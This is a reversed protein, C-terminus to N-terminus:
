AGVPLLLPHARRASRGHRDRGASGAELELLSQLHRRKFIARDGERPGDDELRLMLQGTCMALAEDSRTFLAAASFERRVLPALAQEGAFAQAQVDVPMPPSVPGAYMTSSANPTSGDTSYRIAYGLSQSREVRVKGGADTKAEILPFVAHQARKFSRMHDTWVNAQVGIVHKAQTADLVAPVPEFAYM